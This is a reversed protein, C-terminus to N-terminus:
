AHLSVHKGPFRVELVRSSADFGACRVDCAQETSRSVPFGVWGLGELVIVLTNKTM